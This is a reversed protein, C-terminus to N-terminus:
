NDVAGCDCEPAEDESLSSEYYFMFKYYACLPSHKTQMNMNGFTPTSQKSANM